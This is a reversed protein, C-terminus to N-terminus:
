KRLHDDNDNILLKSAELLHKARNWGSVEKYNEKAWQLLKKDNDYIGEYEKIDGELEKIKEQERVLNVVKGKLPDNEYVLVKDEELKVRKLM